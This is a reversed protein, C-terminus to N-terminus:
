LWKIRNNLFYIPTVGEANQLIVPLEYIMFSLETRNKFGKIMSKQQHLDIIFAFNIKLLDGIQLLAM